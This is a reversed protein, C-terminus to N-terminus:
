FQSMEPSCSMAPLQFERFALGLTLPSNTNLFFILYFLIQKLLISLLFVIFAVRGGHERKTAILTAHLGKKIKDRTVESGLGLSFGSSRVHFLLM